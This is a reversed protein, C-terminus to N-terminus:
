KSNKTRKALITIIIPYGIGFIVAFGIIDVLNIDQALAEVIVFAFTAFFTTVASTLIVNKDM